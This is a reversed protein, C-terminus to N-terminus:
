WANSTLQRGMYALRCGPLTFFLGRPTMFATKEKDQPRLPTQWYGKTLDLVSM